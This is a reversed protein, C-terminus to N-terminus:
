RSGNENERCPSAASASTADEARSPSRGSGRGRTAARCWGSRRRGCRPRPSRGRRGRARPRCARRVDDGLVVQAGARALEALREARRRSREKAVLANGHVATRGTSASSPIPASTAEPPSSCIARRAPTRAPAHDREVAVGLGFALEALREVRPTPSITARCRRRAPGGRAGRRRAVCSTIIRTVGSTRPSVCSWMEVPWASVFNPKESASAGAAMSRM